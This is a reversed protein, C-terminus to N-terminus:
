LSRENTSFDTSGAFSLGPGGSSNRTRDDCSHVLTNSLFITAAHRMFVVGQRDWIGNRNCARIRLAHTGVPIRSYIAVPNAPADLWESDVGDLRYQLRIKEPASIEVAAFHIEVHSTGPPLVIERGAHQSNRGITVDTLYISPKTNTVPLRRLDFM